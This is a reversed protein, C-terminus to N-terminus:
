RWCFATERSGSVARRGGQDISFVLCEGDNAQGGERTPTASAIFTQGDAALTVSLAYRHSASTAALGLGGPAAGTLDSTYQGHRLHFREEAAAIEYLAATAEGRHVRVLHQRYAPLSLASILGVILVVVLIEMLTIGRVFM